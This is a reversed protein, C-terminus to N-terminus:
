VAGGVIDALLLVIDDQAEEVDDVRTPLADMIAQKEAEERAREEAEIKQETIEQLEEETYEHYVEVQLIDPIVLEKPFGSTDVMIPYPLVKDDDDCMEWHGIEPSIERFEVDKGGTEPYEAIVVEEHEAPKELVYKYRVPINTLILEGLELDPHEIIEKTKEDIIM